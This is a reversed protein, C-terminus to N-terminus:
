LFPTVRRVVGRGNKYHYASALFHFPLLAYELFRGLRTHLDIARKATKLDPNDPYPKAARLFPVGTGSYYGYTIGSLPMLILVAYLAHHSAGELLQLGRPGPFRPPIDSFFRLIVRALVALLMLFGSGKHLAMYHKKTTGKSRAAVQVFGISGIVGIAIGLHAHRLAKSYTGQPIRRSKMAKRIYLVLLVGAVVWTPTSLAGPSGGAAFAAGSMFKIHLPFKDTSLQATDLDLSNGKADTVTLSGSEFDLVTIGTARKYEEWKLAVPTNIHDDHDYHFELKAVKKELGGSKALGLWVERQRPVVEGVLFKGKRERAFASHQQDEFAVTADRGANALLIMDGGPHEDLWASMDYVKNHLIIYPECGAPVVEAKAEDCWAKRGTHEAVEERTFQRVKGDPASEAGTQAM